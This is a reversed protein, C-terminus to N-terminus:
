PDASGFASETITRLSIETIKLSNEIEEYHKSHILLPTKCIRLYCILLFCGGQKQKQM